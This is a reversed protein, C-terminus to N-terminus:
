SQKVVEVDKHDFHLVSIAQQAWEIAREPTDFHILCVYKGNFEWVEVKEGTSKNTAVAVKKRIM